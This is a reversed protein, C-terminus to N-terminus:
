DIRVERTSKRNRRDSQYELYRIEKPEAGTEDRLCFSPQPSYGGASNQFCDAFRVECQFSTGTKPASSREIAARAKAVAEKCLGEALGWTQCDALTAMYKGEEACAPVRRKSLFISYGIAAVIAAVILFKLRASMM